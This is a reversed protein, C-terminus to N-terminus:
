AAAGPAQKVVLPVIIAALIGLIIPVVFLIIVWVIRVGGARVIADAGDHYTNVQGITRLAHRYYMWNGLIGFAICVGLNLVIGPWQVEYGWSLQLVVQLIGLVFLTGFAIWFYKYMRRYLLWLLNFFFAPWNWRTPQPGGNPDIKSWAQLYYDANPGVFTRLDEEPLQM